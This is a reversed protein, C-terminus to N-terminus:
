RVIGVLGFAQILWILILLASWVKYVTDFPKPRAFAVGCLITVILLQILM